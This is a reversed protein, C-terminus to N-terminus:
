FNECLQWAQRRRTHRVGPPGQMATLPWSPSLGPWHRVQRLLTPLLLEQRPQTGQNTLACALEINMEIPGM